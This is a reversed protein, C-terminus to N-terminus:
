KSTETITLFAEELSLPSVELERLPVGAATLEAILADADRTYVIHRDLQSEVTGATRLPPLAAARLAVRTLGTGARVEGVTGTLVIRGRVLLVLRTAFREAEDLRHTTLLVAGGRSVFGRLERWLDRGGAADLGATPEDLVLVRPRGVLALAVALRRREGGSLAGTQRGALSALGFRELLPQWAPRAPHHAAVLAAVERVRLTEPFGVDQLVVGVGRRAAPERPDLGLLRARGHDPRRLGVLISVATTKGAGNPGLLGVIEGSRLELDINELAITTGFFRTVRDLEAVPTAPQVTELVPHLALQAM